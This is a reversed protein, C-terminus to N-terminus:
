TALSTAPVGVAAQAAQQRLGAPCRGLQTAATSLARMARAPATPTARHRSLAAPRREGRPAPHPVRLPAVWLAALSRHRCRPQLLAPHGANM